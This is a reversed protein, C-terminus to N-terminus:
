SHSTDTPQLLVSDALIIAKALEMLSKSQRQSEIQLFRHAQEEPIQRVRMIIGKAKEICKREELTQKLQKVEGKLIRSEEFRSMSVKIAPLLDSLRCPKVVYAFVGANSVANILEDDFYASCVVIPVPHTKMIQKAAKLGDMGPMRLDMIVVDPELTQTLEVADAGNMSKGIVHHGASELLQSLADVIHPEDDAILIRYEVM